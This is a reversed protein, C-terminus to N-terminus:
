RWWGSISSEVPDDPNHFGYAREHEAFFMKCIAAANPLPDAEGLAIPLEFNQGIYRADLVVDLSSRGAEREVEFWARADRILDAM